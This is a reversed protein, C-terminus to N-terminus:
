FFISHFCRFWICKFGTNCNEVFISYFFVVIFFCLIFYFFYFFVFSLFVLLLIFCSLIFHFLIFSFFFFLLLLIFLYFLIFYFFVFVFIFCFLVFSIRFIKLFSLNLNKDGLKADAYWWIILLFPVFNFFIRSWFHGSSKAQFPSNRKLHVLLTYKETVTKFLNKKRKLWGQGKIIEHKLLSNSIPFCTRINKLLCLIHIM